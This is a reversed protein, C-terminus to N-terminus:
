NKGKKGLAKSFKSALKKAAKLSSDRVDEAAAENRMVLINHLAEALEVELDKKSVGAPEKKGAHGPYEVRAVRGAGVAADKWSGEDVEICVAGGPPIEDDFGSDLTHAFTTISPNHGFLMIRQFHDDMGRIVTRFATATQDYLIKRQMVKETPIGFIEAFIEATRLARVATSSILADPVPEGKLRGVVEAADREGREDLPRDIDAGAHKVAKAHRVLCITKM